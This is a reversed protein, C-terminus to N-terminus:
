HNRLATILEDKNMTSRGNIELESARQRLEKVTWEEYSSSEGGKVGIDKRSSNAAAANAIRAAKEKSGGERRIAQYVEGDKVSPGGTTEEPRKDQTMSALIRTQAAHTHATVGLLCM